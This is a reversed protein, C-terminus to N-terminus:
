CGSFVFYIYLRLTAPFWQHTLMLGWEVCGSGVRGLVTKFRGSGVRFLQRGLSIEVFQVVFWDISGSVSGPMPPGSPWGRWQGFTCSIGRFNARCIGSHMASTCINGTSLIQLRGHPLGGLCQLSSVTSQHPQERGSATMAVLLLRGRVRPLYTM